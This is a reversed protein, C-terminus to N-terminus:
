MAKSNMKLTRHIRSMAERPTFCERKFRSIIGVCTTGSIGTGDRAITGVSYRGKLNAQRLCCISRFRRRYIRFVARLSKFETKGDFTVVGDGDKDAQAMITDTKRSVEAETQALHNAKLIRTM